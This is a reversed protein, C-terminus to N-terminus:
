GDAGVHRRLDDLIEARVEPPGIVRARAGLGYLRDRFAARHTVRVTIIVQGDDGPAEVVGGVMANQVLPLHEPTTSLVVDVPADVAWTMPDYGRHPITAATEATGPDEIWVGADMRAVVFTKVVDSDIERGRLAWGSPSSHLVYPHVVRPKGHYTFHVLCHREAARELEDLFRPPDAAQQDEEAVADQLAQREGATLTVALRNDDPRLRFVGDLGEGGVSAIDWGAERLRRIDRTLASSGSTVPYEGIQALRDGPVGYKPHDALYIVLRMLREMATIPDRGPAAM